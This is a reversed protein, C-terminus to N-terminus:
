FRMSKRNDQASQENIRLMEDNVPVNSPLIFEAGSTQQVSRDVLDGARNAEGAYDVTLPSTTVRSRLTAPDLARRQLDLLADPQRLLPDPRVQPQFTEMTKPAGGATGMLRTLLGLFESDQPSMRYGGQQPPQGSAMQILSQILGGSHGGRLSDLFRDLFSAGPASASPTRQTPTFEFQSAM